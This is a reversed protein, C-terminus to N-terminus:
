LETGAVADSEAPEWRLGRVRRTLWDAIGNATSRDGDFPTPVDAADAGEPWFLLTPFARVGYRQSLAVHHTADVEAIVIGGVSDGTEGHTAAVGDAHAAHLQSAHTLHRVSLAIRNAPASAVYGPLLIM